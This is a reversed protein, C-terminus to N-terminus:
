EPRKDTGGAPPIPPPAPSPSLGAAAAAKERTRRVRPDEDPDHKVEPPTWRPAGPDVVIPPPLRPPQSSASADPPHDPPLRVPPHTPKPHPSPETHTVIAHGPLGPALTGFAYDCIGEFLGQVIKAQGEATRIFKLDRPSTLFGCEVLVAPMRAERLVVFRARRLGRDALGTARVGRRQIAFGLRMNRVDHANGNELRNAMAQTAPCPNDASTSLMGRPPLVYTEFGHPATSPNANFHISVFLDARWHYALAAREELRLFTAPDSRSLKVEFGANRLSSALAQAIKLNVHSERTKGDRSLAGSDQGGHGPDLFVRVARDTVLANTPAQTLPALTHRADQKSPAAQRTAPDLVAPELLFVRIGDIRADPSGYELDVKWPRPKGADPAPPRPEAPQPEAPTPDPKMTSDAPMPTTEPAAGDMAPPTEEPGPLTGKGSACGSLLTAAVLVALALRRLLPLPHFVADVPPM